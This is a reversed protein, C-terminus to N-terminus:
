QYTVSLDMPFKCYFFASVSFTVNNTTLPQTYPCPRGVIRGNKQQECVYMFVYMCLYTYIYSYIRTNEYHISACCSAATFFLLRQMSMVFIWRGVTNNRHPLVAVNDCRM